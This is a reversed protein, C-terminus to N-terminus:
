AGDKRSFVLDKLTKLSDVFRKINGIAKGSWYSNSLERAKDGPTFVFWFYHTDPELSSLVIDQSYIYAAEFIDKTKHKDM